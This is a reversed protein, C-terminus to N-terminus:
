IVKEVQEIIKKIVQSNLQNGIFTFLISGILFFLLLQKSTLNKFFLLFNISAEINSLRTKVTSIDLTNNTFNRLDEEQNQKLKALESIISNDSTYVKEYLVKVQEEIRNLLLELQLLEKESNSNKDVLNHFLNTINTDITSHNNVKSLLEQYQQEKLQLLEKTENLLNLQEVYETIDEYTYLIAIIFGKISIPIKNVKVHLRKGEPAILHTEVVNILPSKTSLILNDCYKAYSITNPETINLSTFVPEDVVLYPALSHNSGLYKGNYDKWYIYIPLNNLIRDSTPELATNTLYNDKFGIVVYETYQDTTEIKKGFLILTVTDSVTKTINNQKVELNITYQYNLKNSLNTLYILVSLDSYSSLALSDLYGVDKDNFISPDLNFLDAYYTNVSLYTYTNTTPTYKIHLYICPLLDLTTTTLM